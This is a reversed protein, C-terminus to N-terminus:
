DITPRTLTDTVIRGIVEDFGLGAQQAAAIFGADPALCPNANVELVWSNGTKDVRFDVRAYGRVEFLAASRLALEKLRGLLPVDEAPFAFRRVTHRYEFSGTEWKAPYGVIKPKDAPFDKFYIEAPPLVELGDPGIILALNFERGEIYREAYWDGGFRLRREGIAKALAGAESVLSGDDIGISAHEWVSKVIWLGAFGGEKGSGDPDWRPPTAIGELSLLRKTLLKNSSLFMGTLSTGTYPLGLAELLAPALHILRGSGAVSEVLNFVLLPRRRVLWARATDLDLTLALTEARYGLRELAQAVAQVEVLADQEDPPAHEAVAGYLVVVPQATSAAM